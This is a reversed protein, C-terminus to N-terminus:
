NPVSISCGSRNKIPAAAPSCTLLPTWIRIMRKGTRDEAIKCAEETPQAAMGMIADVGHELFVCLIDAVREVSQYETIFRDKAKSTHSYGRFWNTGIIMRPMSVGGVMTRPFTDM